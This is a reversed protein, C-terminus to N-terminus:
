HTPVFPRDKPVLATVKGFERFGDCLREDFTQMSDPDAAVLWGLRKTRLKVQEDTDFERLYLVDVKKGTPDEPRRKGLLKGFVWLVAASMAM